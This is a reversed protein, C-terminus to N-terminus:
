CVQLIMKLSLSTLLAEFTCVAKKQVSTLGGNLLSAKSIVNFKMRKHPELEPLRSRITYKENGNNTIRSQQEGLSSLIKSDEALFFILM